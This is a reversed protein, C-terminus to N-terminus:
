PLDSFAVLLAVSLASAILLATAAAIGLKLISYGVIPICSGLAACWHAFFPEEILHLRAASRPRDPYLSRLRQIFSAFLVLALASGSLGPRSAGLIRMLEAAALAFTLHTALTVLVIVRVFRSFRRRPRTM